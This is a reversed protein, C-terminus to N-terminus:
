ALFWALVRTGDDGWWQRNLTRWYGFKEDSLNRHLADCGDVLFSRAGFRARATAVLEEGAGGANMATILREGMMGVNGM